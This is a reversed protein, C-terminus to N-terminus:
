KNGGNDLIQQQFFLYKALAAIVLVVVVVGLLGGWGIGWMMGGNMLDYM